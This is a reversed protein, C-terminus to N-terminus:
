DNLVTCNSSIYKRYFEPNEILEFFRNIYAKIEKGSKKNLPDFDNITKFIEAKHGIFEKVVDQCAQETFCPGSFVRTKVSAIEPNRVNVAYGANVFGSHDFDYPVVFPLEKTFNNSKLLKVNHLGEIKWDVNGIMFQFLSFRIMSEPDVHRMGLNDNEIELCDNRQALVGVDEILFAYKNITKIKEESDIYQMKVLQVRFSLETFLNYLKYVLYEKLLYQESTGSNNCHTVLKHSKVQDLYSDRFSTNKLKLKIPPFYCIEKRSNGRTKISISDSVSVGNNKHYSLVAPIEKEEFKNKIFDRIDFTLTFQLPNDSEFINQGIFAADNESQSKQSFGDPIILFVMIALLSCQLHFNNNLLSLM